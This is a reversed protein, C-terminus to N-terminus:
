FRNENQSVIFSIANIENITELDRVSNVVRNANFCKKRQNLAPKLSRSKSPATQTLASKHGFPSIPPM